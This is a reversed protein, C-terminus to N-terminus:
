RSREGQPKRNFQDQWWQRDRIFIANGNTDESLIWGQPVSIGAPGKATVAYNM